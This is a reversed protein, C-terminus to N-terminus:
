KKVPPPPLHEIPTMAPTHADEFAAEKLSALAAKIAASASKGGDKPNELTALLADEALKGAAAASRELRSKEKQLDSIIRDRDAVAVGRADLQRELASARKFETKEADSAAFARRTTWIVFAILALTTSLAGISVAELM